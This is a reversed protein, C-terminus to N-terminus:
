WMPEPDRWTVRSKLRALQVAGALREAQGTDGLRLYPRGQDVQPIAGQQRAVRFSLAPTHFNHSLPVRELAQIDDQRDTLEKIAKPFGKQLM